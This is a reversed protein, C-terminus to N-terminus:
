RRRKAGIVKWDRQMLVIDASTLGSPIYLRGDQVRKDIQLETIARGNIFVFLFGGRREVSLADLSVRGHEDLQLLVGFQGNGLSYPLFAVVDEETLRAVKEISVDKGSLQAKIATSFVETDAPNAEAHVRLMCHKRKAPASAVALLLLIAILGLRVPM